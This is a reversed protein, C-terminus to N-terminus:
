FNKSAVVRMRDRPASGTMANNIQWKANPGKGLRTAFLSEIPFNMPM